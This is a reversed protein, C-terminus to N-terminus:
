EGLIFFERKTVGDGIDDYLRNELIYTAETKILIKNAKTQVHDMLFFAEPSRDGLIKPAIKM